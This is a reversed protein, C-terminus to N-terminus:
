VYPVPVIEGDIFRFSVRQVTDKIFRTYRGIVIKTGGYISHVVDVRASEANELTKEIELVAEKASQLDQETQRSTAALKIRMALREQTLNGAAAMQNLMALAKETKDLSETLQRITARLENLQQRLEPQVGVEIATATSMANGIMRATVKEGAQTLGGVILGKSGLCIVNKGARVNSHMISQTVLVDEGATVNGEQIFSCRVNRGAKVYGKHSGIIGGNVEISGESEVEAGEIGGTVRIDGAARIRFGTLVNGRIVVTGVFDINGVTYDVDGNVEYVPFVNLKDKETRTVLGDIAAYIGTKEPNVVVNKGLKLVAEKGEKAPIEEGTVAIGPTGPGPPYREAILQGAKVNALRTVERYDVSGDERELPKRTQSDEDILVKIYGDTGKQPPLGIAVINPGHLFNQPKAAIQALVDSQIGYTVGEAALVLELDPVTLKIEGDVRKFTLFAQMKDESVTVQLMEALDSDQIM